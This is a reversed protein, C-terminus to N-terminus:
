VPSACAIMGATIKATDLVLQGAGASSYSCSTGGIMSRCCFCRGKRLKQIVAMVSFGGHWSLKAHHPSQVASRFGDSVRLAPSSDVKNIRCKQLQGHIFGVSSRLVLGSAPSRDEAFVIAPRSHRLWRLQPAFKLDQGAAAVDGFAPDRSRSHSPWPM